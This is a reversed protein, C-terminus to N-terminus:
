FSEVSNHPQHGADESDGNKQFDRLWHSVEIIHRYSFTRFTMYKQLDNEQAIYIGQITHIRM